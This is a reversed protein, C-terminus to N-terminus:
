RKPTGYVYHDLQEFFDSPIKALEEPSELVILRVRKAAFYPAIAAVQEMTGEIELPKPEM